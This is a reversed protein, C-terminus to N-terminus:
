DSRQKAENSQDGNDFNLGEMFTFLNDGSSIVQRADRWTRGKCSDHFCQYLLRGSDQQIIASENGNHAADFICHDLCYLTGVGNSKIKYPIGYHDLYKIVDLKGNGTNRTNGTNQSPKEPTVMKYLRALVTTRDIAKIGDLNSDIYAMRHPRADRGPGAPVPDGKRAITGYLKFIRAPNFVSTDITVRDTNFKDALFHIFNEIFNRSQENVQIDPLQYLLHAGNGSMATLPPPLGLEQSCFQAVKERTDMASALESDSASIGAPRVPDIDIPIWRYKLVNHDSTTLNSPKLRNFARAILRPDIVQLTFYIGGHEVKDAEKVANCFPEHDDFYGSAVGKAFEGGWAASKGWVKLIRVEMVEDPHAFLDFAEKHFLTHRSTTM